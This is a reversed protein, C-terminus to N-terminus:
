VCVLLAVTEVHHTQPLADLLVLRALRFTDGLRALDRALTAPDCSVYIVRRARSHRIAESVATDCGTRPPNLLVLDPALGRLAVKAWDEAPAEVVEARTNRALDRAARSREVAIVRAFAGEIVATYFGVGAYLEVALEGGGALEAVLALWPEWLSSNAQFFAGPAVRLSRGAAPARAGFGRIELEGRGQPRRARLADLQAQTAGDLVLCHEVDIVRHSARGRFGVRGSEYAVRARARYALARPSGIWELQPLERLGGIRALAERLLSERASRQAADDLHMWSCGGCRAFYPCPPERRGPGAELLAELEARAFRRQVQVVRVRALDGPAGLPVFVVRSGARGVADGGAALSELRLEIRQGVVLDPEDGPAAGSL